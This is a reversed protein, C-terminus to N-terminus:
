GNNLKKKDSSIKDSKSVFYFGTIATALPSIVAYLTKATDAVISRAKDIGEFDIEKEQNEIKNLTNNVITSVMYGHWIGTSIFALWLSVALLGSIGTRFITVVSDVSIDISKFKSGTAENLSVKELEQSIDLSNFEKRDNNNVLVEELNVKEM